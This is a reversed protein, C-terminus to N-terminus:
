EFCSGDSVKYTVNMTPIVSMLKKGCFSGHADKKYNKCDECKRSDVELVKIGCEVCWSGKEEKRGKTVTCNCNSFDPQNLTKNYQKESM